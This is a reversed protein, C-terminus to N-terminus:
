IEQGSITSYLDQSQNDKNTRIVRVRVGAAVSIPSKLEIPINPNATSNFGVFFTNFIGSAVGTEVQVEIKMKGSASAWIESLLLTKLATVTYDHNVSAGAAVASSALFDNIETGSPDSSISVPIASQNSAIVVPLSASMTTQGLAINSGGVKTLDQTWPANGQEATVVDANTLARIDRPDVQTGAVVVGVDLARQGGSTQSTVGNGSADNLKATLKGSSDVSLLQTNTTGDCIKSVVDGNAETRMPLSSNFDSM